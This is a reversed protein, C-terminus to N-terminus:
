NSQEHTLKKLLYMVRSSSDINFKTMIQYYKGFDHQFEDINYWNFIDERSNLLRQTNSDEKPVWEIVLWPALSSFWEAIKIFPTNNSIALHHVLALALIMDANARDNISMRESGAWGFGTTPNTLDMVMPFIKTQKHNRWAFDIAVPDSDMLVVPTGLDSVIKSFHGTNGGMDWVLKPAVKKVISEIIREKSIFSDQKYNNEGEQYYKEWETHQKNTTLSNITSRLNETIGKLYRDKFKFENSSAQSIKNNEYKKVSKTHGYLHLLIGVNFRAKGPLLKIAVDLPIGDIFNRIMTNLRLDCYKMISIPALFHQCFQRYAVWPGNEYKEFSLTDILLPKNNIFQINFASADKLVMGFDLAIQLIDLTALAAEKYQSFSWEYPYSIFNIQEPLLVKYTQTGQNTEVEAHSVLLGKDLLARYLGSGILHDYNDKYSMNVLRYFVGDKKFVYGSPDRFSSLISNVQSEM